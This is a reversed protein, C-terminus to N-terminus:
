VVAGTGLKGIPTLKSEIDGNSSIVREDDKRFIEFGPFEKIITQDKKFGTTDVNALNNSLVDEKDMQVIMGSASTYIGRLM